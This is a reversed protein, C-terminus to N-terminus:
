CPSPAPPGLIFVEVALGDRNVQSLCATVARGTAREVADCFLSEVEDQFAQRHARVQEFRGGDVLVQEARTFVEELVAVLVDDRYTTRARGPGRGYYEAHIGVVERCVATAIAVTEDRYEPNQDPM